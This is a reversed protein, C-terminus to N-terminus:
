RAPTRAAIAKVLRENDAFEKDRLADFQEPTMTYPETGNAALREKMQQSTIATVIEDHLRKVIDRPTKAPLLLGLWGSYGSNAVGAEESTPVDPLAPSRRFGLALPVLRGDRILPLASAVGTYTYTVRGAVVETLGETTSKFPVHLADFEAAVRLKEATMYTSSGLGASAFTLAGPKAKAAAILEDLSKLGSSKAVVLVLPSDIITTIGVLDRKPDFSLKGLFAPASTQSSSDALITYGDPPAGAVAAGAITGSAGPKNEIIFPQGMNRSLVDALERMIVDIATGPGYGIVVKIPKSPYGQGFACAASLWLVLGLAANRLFTNM